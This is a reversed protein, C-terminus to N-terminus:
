EGSGSTRVDGSRQPNSLGLLEDPRGRPLWQVTRVAVALDGLQAKLRRLEDLTPASRPAEDTAFYYAWIICAGLFAFMGLYSIPSYAPLRLQAIATEVM